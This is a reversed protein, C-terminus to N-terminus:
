QEAYDETPPEDEASYEPPVDGDSNLIERADRYVFELFEIGEPTDMPPGLAMPELHQDTRTQKDEAGVKGLRIPHHPPHCRQGNSGIYDL